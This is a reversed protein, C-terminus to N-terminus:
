YWSGRRKNMSLGDGKMTIGSWLYMLNRDFGQLEMKPLVETEIKKIVAPSDTENVFNAVISKLKENAAPKPMKLLERYEPSDQNIHTKILNSLSGKKNSLARPDASESIGRNEKSQITPNGVIQIGEILDIENLIRDRAEEISGLTPDTIVFDFTFSQIRSKSNSVAAIPKYGIVYNPVVTVAYKTFAYAYDEADPVDEATPLGCDEMCQLMSVEADDFSEYPESSGNVWTDMTWYNGFKDTIITNRYTFGYPNSVESEKLIKKM